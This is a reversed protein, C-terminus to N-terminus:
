IHAGNTTRCIDLSYGVENWMAQLMNSTVSAVADRIRAKLHQLDNIKVQYVINKVHGRLLCDLPTLDPSRPSLAIPGSRGIWRGAMDRDLHNKVHHCLTAACARLCPMFFVNLTKRESSM